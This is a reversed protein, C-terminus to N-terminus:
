KWEFDREDNTIDVVTFAERPNVRMSLWTVFAYARKLTIKLDRKPHADLLIRLNSALLRLGQRYIPLGKGLSSFTLDTALNLRAEVSNPFYRHEQYSAALESGRQLLLTAHLIDGDPLHGFYYGLNGIWEEWPSARQQEEPSMVLIYGAAAAAYENQFKERLIRICQDVIIRAASLDGEQLFGLISQIQPDSITLGFSIARTAIPTPTSRATVRAQVPFRDYDGIYESVTHWKHPLCALLEGREGNITVYRRSFLGSDRARAFRSSQDSDLIPSNIAWTFSASDFTSYKWDLKRSVHRDDGLYAFLLERMRDTPHSQELLRRVASPDVISEIIGPTWTNAVTRGAQFLRLSGDSLQESRTETEYQRSMPDAYGAEDRESIMRARTEFSEGLVIHFDDDGYPVSITETFLQGNPLKVRALYTGEEMPIAKWADSASSVMPIALGLLRPNLPLPYDSVLSLDAIGFLSTDLRNNDDSPGDIRLLIQRTMM